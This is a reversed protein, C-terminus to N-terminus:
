EGFSQANIEEWEDEETNFRYAKLTISEETDSYEHEVAVDSGIRNSFHTKTGLKVPRKILELKIKGGPGSFVIWEDTGIGDSNETKKEEEIDYKERVTELLEKWREYTM